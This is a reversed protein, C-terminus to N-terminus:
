EVNQLQERIKELEEKMVAGRQSIEADMSKSSITNVERNIEQTLFNLRRGSLESSKINDTFYKIHSKLRILEETIDIREAYLIIETELRSEDILKNDSLLNNIKDKLKKRLVSTKSSSLKTIIESDKKIFNIREIIDKKLADGEKKKMNNLDEVAKDVLKFLFIKESEDSETSVEPSSMEALRLIHELRVKEDSGILSNIKNLEEAYKKILVSDLNLNGIATEQSEATINVSIKGRSIKKKVIEKLEFDYSAFQRPYRLSLDSYRNNVSRIEVYYKRGKYSGESKGFGTMSIIM